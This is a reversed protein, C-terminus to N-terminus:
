DFLVKHRFDDNWAAKLRKKKISLKSSEKQLLNLCIHRVMSMVAPANGTRIRSDDERFTVDMCWHLTNEVGWHSRVAHAFVKTQAQISNIFYHTEVTTEEAITCTRQVMGIFFDGM